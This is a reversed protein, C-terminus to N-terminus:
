LVYEHLRGQAPLESVQTLGDPSQARVAPAASLLALLAVAVGLLRRMRSMEGGSTRVRGTVANDRRTRVYGNRGIQATAWSDDHPGLGPPSARTATATSTTSSMSSTRVSSLTASPMSSRKSTMSRQPVALSAM